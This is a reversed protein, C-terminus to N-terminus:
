VRFGRVRLGEVRFGLDRFMSFYVGQVKTKLNGRDQNITERVPCWYVEVLITAPALLCCMAGTFGHVINIFGWSAKTPLSRPVYPSHAACIPSVVWRFM